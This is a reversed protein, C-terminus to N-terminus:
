YGRLLIYKLNGANYIKIYGSDKLFDDMNAYKNQKRFDDTMQRPLKYQYYRKMESPHIWFTQPHTVNTQVFNLAQYGKGSAWDLDAYTMIDDPNADMIFHAVIKGLGGTVRHHLTNAYRVLEFSRGKVGNRIFNRGASFSAAALLQGEHFLGYNYRADVFSQLHNVAFFEFMVDRSIRKLHTKRAHIRSSSGSIMAIRSRVIAQKKVWCDQWLNVLQIEQSAYELSKEQFYTPSINQLGTLPIPLLHFVVNKGSIHVTKGLLENDFIEIEPNYQRICDIIENEFM